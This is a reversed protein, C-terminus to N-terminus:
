ILDRSEEVNIESDSDGRLIQLKNFKVQTTLNDTQKIKKTQRNRSDKHLDNINKNNDKCKSESGSRVTHNKTKQYCSFNNIIKMKSSNNNNKLGGFGNSTMTMLKHTSNCYNNHTINEEEKCLDIKINNLENGKINDRYTKNQVSEKKNTSTVSNKSSATTTSTNKIRINPVKMKPQIFKNQNVQKRNSITDCQKIEDKLSLELETKTKNLSQNKQKSFSNTKLYKNLPKKNNIGNQNGKSTLIPNNKIQQNVLNTYNSFANQLRHSSIEKNTGFHKPKQFPKKKTINTEKSASRAKTESKNTSKRKSQNNVLEATIASMGYAQNSKLHSHKNINVSIKKTFSLPRRSTKLPEDIKNINNQTLFPKKNSNNSSNKSSNQIFNTDFSFNENKRKLNNIVRPNTNFEKQVDEKESFVKMFYLDVKDRTFNPNNSNYERENEKSIKEFTDMLNKRSTIDGQQTNVNNNKLNNSSGDAIGSYYNNSDSNNNNNPNISSLEAFINNKKEGSKLQSKTYKIPTKKELMKRRNSNINDSIVSSDHEESRSTLNLHNINIQKLKSKSHNQNGNLLNNQANRNIDQKNPTDDYYNCLTSPSYLFSNKKNTIVSSSNNDSNKKFIISNSSIQLNNNSNCDVFCSVGDFSIQNNNMTSKSLNLLNGSNSIVLNSINENTFNHEDKNTNSQSHSNFSLHLSEIQLNSSDSKSNSISIYPTDKYPNKKQPKRSTTSTM